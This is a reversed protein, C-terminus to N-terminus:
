LHKLSLAVSRELIYPSTHTQPSLSKLDFSLLALYWPGSEGLEVIVTKEVLM